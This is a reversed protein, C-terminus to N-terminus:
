GHKIRPLKIEVETGKNEQSRIKIKGKHADIISKALFLGLGMGEQSQNSARYFKEFIGILDKKAIGQGQDRVKIMSYRSNQSVTLIIEKGPASFKASNELVNGLAQLLKDFDGIVTDDQNLLDKLALKSNPYTFNFNVAARRIIERLSYTHFVYHFQGTKIREAELLENVLSTLRTTESLLEEVWRSEQTNSGALRTHLLQTYGSITTIPTRLEHAAMSIFLDRSELAKRTEDYLEAKRIALTAMQGFLKLTNIDKKTFFDIEKSMFTLVGITKNRNTMPVILDSNINLAKIEPHIKVTSRSALILPKHTKFVSYMYGRQRPKIQFLVPSTAYVRKLQGNKELLISSYDANVLKMGEEAILKYTEELELHSLLRLGSNYVKELIKDMKTVGLRKPCM